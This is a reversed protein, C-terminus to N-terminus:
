AAIFRYGPEVRHWRYRMESVYRRECANRAIKLTIIERKKTFVFLICDSFIHSGRKEWGNKRYTQFVENIQSHTLLHVYRGDEFVAIGPMEDKFADKLLDDTAKLEKEISEKSLM